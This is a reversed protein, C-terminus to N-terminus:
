PLWRRPPAREFRGLWRPFWGRPVGVGGRGPPTAVAVLDARRLLYDIEEMDDGKQRCFGQKECFRCGQCPAIHKSPVDVKMVEAGKAQAGELFADLLLDTNGKKRPSGMLGLVFM